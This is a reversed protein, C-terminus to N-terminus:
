PAWARRPHQVARAARRVARRDVGGHVCTPPGEYPYDFTVRGRIERQGDEGQVAWVEVPPAIPNAFGIMPSTPFHDQPHVGPFGAPGPTKRTRKSAAAAAELQDAVEALERRRRARPRRGRAAPRHTVAGIRRLAAAM